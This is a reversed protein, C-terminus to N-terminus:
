SVSSIAGEVCEICDPDGLGTGMGKNGVVAEGERETNAGVYVGVVNDGVRCGTSQTPDQDTHLLAVQRRVNWTDVHFCPVPASQVSNSPSSSKQVGESIPVQMGTGHWSVNESHEADQPFTWLSYPSVQGCVPSTETCHVTPLPLHVCVGVACGVGIGVCGVYVGVVPGVPWRLVGMGIAVGVMDGVSTIGMSMLGVMGVGVMGVGMGVVIGGLTAGTSQTPDHDAHLLSLQRIVYLTLTTCRPPPSAHASTSPASSKQASHTGGQSSHNVSHSAEHALTCLSYPSTHECTPSTDTCHPTPSPLHVLLGVVAGLAGGVGCGVGVAVTPVIGVGVMGVGVVGVGVMGVGM